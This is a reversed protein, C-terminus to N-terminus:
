VAALANAVDEHTIFGQFSMVGPDGTTGTGSAVFLKETRNAQRQSATNLATRLSAGGVGSFIDIFAQRVNARSPNVSDNALITAFADREGQSRAIFTTWDMADYIQARSLSTRWVWYDPVAAANMYEAIATHNGITVHATLAPDALIAVKLTLLQANTM